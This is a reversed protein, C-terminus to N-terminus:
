EDERRGIFEQWDTDVAVIGAVIFFIMLGVCMAALIGEGRENYFQDAFWGCAIIALLHSITNM